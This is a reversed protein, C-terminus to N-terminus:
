NVGGGNLINKGILTNGFLLLISATSKHPSKLDNLDENDYDDPINIVTGYASGLLAILLLKKM